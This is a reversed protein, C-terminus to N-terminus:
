PRDLETREEVKFSRIENKTEVNTVVYDIVKGEEDGEINGNLIEWGRQDLM